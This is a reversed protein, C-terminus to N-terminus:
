FNSKTKELLILQLPVQRLSHDVSQQPAHGAVSSELDTLLHAVEDAADGGDRQRRLGVHGNDVKLHAPCM